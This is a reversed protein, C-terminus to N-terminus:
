RPLTIKFRAGTRSPTPTDNFHCTWDLKLEGGHYNIQQFSYHLGVGGLPKREDYKAIALDGQVGYDFLTQRITKEVGAGNDEVTIEVLQGDKSEQVSIIIKGIEGNGIGVDKEYEIRNRIAIIANLVLNFMVGYLSEWNANVKVDNQKNNTWDIDIISLNKNDERDGFARDVGHYKAVEEGTNKVFSFLKGLSIEEKELNRPDSTVYSVLHEVKTSIMKGITDISREKELYLNGDEGLSSILNRLSARIASMYNKIEHQFAKGEGELTNIPRLRETAMTIENEIRNIELFISKKTAKTNINERESTENLTSHISQIKSTIREIPRSFFMVSGLTILATNVVLIIISPFLIVSFLADFSILVKESSITFEYVERKGQIVRDFIVTYVFGKQLTKNYLSEFGSRLNAIINDERLDVKLMEQSDLINAGTNFDYKQRCSIEGNEYKEYRFGLSSYGLAHLFEDVSENGSIVTEVPIRSVSSNPLPGILNYFADPSIAVSEVVEECSDLDDLYINKVLYIQNALSELQGREFSAVSITLFVVELFLILFSSYLLILKSLSIGEQSATKLSVSWFKEVAM